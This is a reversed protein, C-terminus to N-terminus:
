DKKTDECAGGCERDYGDYTGNKLFFHATNEPNLEEIIISYGDTNPKRIVAPLTLDLETNFIKVKM